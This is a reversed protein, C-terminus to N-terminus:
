AAKRGVLAGVARLAEMITEWMEKAVPRKDRYRAGPRLRQDEDVGIEFGGCVERGAARMIEKAHEIEEESRVELLVGDHILMSPVLGADCLRCAALRLMEAGNAQMPFNYLTRVNPSTSLHLSWSFASGLTALGALSRRLARRQNIQRNHHAAVSYQDALTRKLVALADVPSLRQAEADQEDQDLGRASALLAPEDSIYSFTAPAISGALFLLAALILLVVLIIAVIADWWAGTSKEPLRLLVQSLAAIQFAITAAFFPLSRWVNEEQDIEKRYADALTQEIHDLTLVV